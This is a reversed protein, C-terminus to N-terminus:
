ISISPVWFLWCLRFFSFSTPLSVNDLTLIYYLAIANLDTCYRVERSPWHNLIQGSICCVLTQNRTWSSGVHQLAVLGTCWLKQLGCAQLGHEAVLSAQEGCSPYGRSAAVRSLGCVAVFETCGFNFLYFRSYMCLNIPQMPFFFGTFVFLATGAYPCFDLDVSYFPSDLFSDECKVGISKRIFTGLCSFLSLRKLLRHQFLLM